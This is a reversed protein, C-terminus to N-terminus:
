ASEKEPDDPLGGLPTSFRARMLDLCQQILVGVCRSHVTRGDQPVAYYETKQHALIKDNCLLCYGSGSVHNM